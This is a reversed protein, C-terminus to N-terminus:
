LRNQALGHAQDPSAMSPPPKRSRNAPPIPSFAAAPSLSRIFSSLRTAELPHGFVHAGPPLTESRVAHPTFIVVALPAFAMTQEFFELKTLIGLPPETVMVTPKRGKALAALATQGSAFEVVNPWEARLQAALSMRLARDSQILWIAPSPPPRPMLETGIQSPSAATRAAVFFMYYSTRLMVILKSFIMENNKLKPTSALLRQAAAPFVSRGCTVSSEQPNGQGAMVKGAQLLGDIQEAAFHQELTPGRRDLAGTFAPLTKDQHRIVPQNESLDSANQCGKGDGFDVRRFDV